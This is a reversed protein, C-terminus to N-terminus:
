VLPLSVRHGLCYNYLFSVVCTCLVFMHPHCALITISHYVVPMSVRRRILTCTCMLGYIPVHTYIYVFIYPQNSYVYTYTHLLHGTLRVMYHTLAVRWIGCHSTNVHSAIGANLDSAVMIRCIAIVSGFTVRRANLTHSVCVSYPLILATIRTWSVMVDCHLHRRYRVTIVNHSAVVILVIFTYMYNYIYM